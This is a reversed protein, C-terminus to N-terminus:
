EAFLREVAGTTAPCETVALKVMGTLRTVDYEHIAGAEAPVRGYWFSWNEWVPLEGNLGIPGYRCYIVPHQNKSASRVADRYPGAVMAGEYDGIKTSSYAALDEQALPWGDPGEVPTKARAMLAREAQRKRWDTEQLLDADTPQDNSAAGVSPRSMSSTAGVMELLNERLQRAETNMCQNNTLFKKMTGERRFLDTAQRFMATLLEQPSRAEWGSLRPLIDGLLKLMAGGEALEYMDNFKPYFDPHMETYWKDCHEGGRACRNDTSRAMWSRGEPLYAECVDYFATVYSAYVSAAEFPDEVRSYERNFIQRMVYSRDYAAWFENNRYVGGSSRMGNLYAAVEDSLKQAAAAERAQKRTRYHAYLEAVSMTEVSTPAADGAAGKERRDARAAKLSAWYQRARYEPNAYNAFVWQGPEGVAEYRPVFRDASVRTFAARTLPEETLSRNPLRESKLYYESDEFQYGLAYYYIQLDSVNGFNPYTARLKPLITTNFHEVEETAIRFVPQPDPPVVYSIVGMVEEGAVIEGDPGRPKVFAILGGRQSQPSWDPDRGWWSGYYYVGREDEHIKAIGGRDEVAEFGYAALKDDAFATQCAFLLAGFIFLARVIWNSILCMTTEGLNM